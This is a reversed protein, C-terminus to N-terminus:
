TNAAIAAFFGPTKGQSPSLSKDSIVVGSIQDSKLAIKKGQQKDCTLEIVKPKTSTMAELIKEYLAQAETEDKKEVSVPVPTYQVLIDLTFM